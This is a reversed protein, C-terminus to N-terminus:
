TAAQAQFFTWADEWLLVATTRSNGGWNWTGTAYGGTLYLFDRVISRPCDVDTFERKMAVVTHPPEDDTFLQELTFMLPTWDAYSYGAVSRIEFLSVTPRNPATDIVVAHSGPDAGDAVVLDTGSVTWGVDEDKLHPSCAEWILGGGALRVAREQVYRASGDSQPDKRYLWFAM